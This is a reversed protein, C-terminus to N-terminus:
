GIPQEKPYFIKVKDSDDIKLLDCLVYVETVRFPTLGKIKKYYGQSSLALKECIFSTKLGSEDIKRKLLDADVYLAKIM